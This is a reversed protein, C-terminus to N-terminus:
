SNIMKILRNYIKGPTIRQIQVVISYAKEKLTKERKSFDYSLFWELESPLEQNDYNERFRNQIPLFRGYKNNDAVVKIKMDWSKKKLLNKDLNFGFDRPDQKEALLGLITRYCKQCKCCNEGDLSTYCARLEIPKNTNSIYHAIKKLKDQRTDDSGDHIVKCGKFRVYNDIRPNSACTIDGKEIQETTFSSAIYIERLNHLFSIPAVHGLLGIGHQFGHWWNDGSNKVLNDLNKYNLFSRFNSRVTCNQLDFQTGVKKIKKFVNNWGINNDYEIDAGWITILLPSNQINTILTSFADVGGSFMVASRDNEGNNEPVSTLNNITLKGRFITNPYMEIYGKKFNSISNYFDRDLEDVVIEYNNIWSIPLLNSLLPIVILSEPVSEINMNYELRFITEKFYQSATGEPIFSLEAINNKKIIKNIVIKDM